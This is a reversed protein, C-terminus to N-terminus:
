FKIVQLKGSFVEGNLSEAKVFYLGSPLSSVDLRMIDSSETITLVEEGNQSFVHIENIEPDIKNSVSVRAFSYNTAPNPFLVLTGQTDENEDVIVTHYVSNTVIYENYDFQILAKNSLVKGNVIDNKQDVTFQIFGNSGEFNSSSDPLYIEPFYFYLKNGETTLQYRHSSVINSISSVDVGDPLEDIINVFDAEYSGVNQFRIRYTIKDSNHIFHQESEGLPYVLLDNPDMSGVVTQVDLFSDNAKNCDQSSSTLSFSSEIIDNLQADLSVRFFLVLSKLDNYSMDALDWTLITENNLGLSSSSWSVNASDVEIGSPLTATLVVSKAAKLGLNKVDIHYKSEFGRRLVVTYATVDLDAEECLPILPYYGVFIASSKKVDVRKPISCKTKFKDRDFSIKYKKKSLSIKAIGENNTVTTLDNGFTFKVGSLLKEGEDYSCNENEDHFAILSTETGKPEVLVLNSNRRVKKIKQIYGSPWYVEVEVKDENSLGFHQRYSNQGGIGNQSSIFRTMWVGNAKVRIKAGIASNNSSTGELRIKLWNNDNDNTRFIIDEDNGHTSSILDMDGDNDIDSFSVGFAKGFNSNVQESKDKIFLGNGNNLYLFKKGQDNSVFLDLDKDIDIDVFSAGHSHGGNSVVDGNTVLSFSGDGENLYLENNEDSANSIFLDFDGDNDIDGWTSSVSYGGHNTVENFVEEFEGNGINHYMRNAGGNNNLLLLDQYGDGDYDCWTGGVSSGVAQSIVNDSDLSWKGKDNQRWLENFRSPLYNGLYLELLGDNDVDVWSVHHYYGVNKTFSATTNKVFTGDGNNVFFTCPLMSSNAIVVDLDGDNDFDGWSSSMSKAVDEVLVGSNVEEFTGDGLNNYLRNPQNLSADTFFLDDDHDNDYDVASVTWSNTLNFDTTIPEKTAFLLNSLDHVDLVLYVDESSSVNKNDLRSEISFNMNFFSNDEFINGDVDYLGVSVISVVSYKNSGKSKMDELNSISYLSNGNPLISRESYFKDGKKEDYFYCDAVSIEKDFELLVQTNKFDEKGTLKIESVVSVVEKVGVNISTSSFDQSISQSFTFGTFILLNFCLLLIRVM